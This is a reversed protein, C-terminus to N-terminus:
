HSTISEYLYNSKHMKCVIRLWIRGVLHPLKSWQHDHQFAFKLLEKSGGFLQAIVFAHYWIIAATAALPENPALGCAKPVLNPAQICACSVQDIKFSVAANRVGLNWERRFM